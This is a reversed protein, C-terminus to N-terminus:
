TRGSTRWYKVAMGCIDENSAYYEQDLHHFFADGDQALTLRDRGRRLMDLTEVAGIAQLTNVIANLYKEPTSLVELWGSNRVM